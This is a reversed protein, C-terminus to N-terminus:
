GAESKDALRILKNRRKLKKIAQQVIEKPRDNGIGTAIEKDAYELKELITTNFEFQLRNGKFKFDLEKERQLQLVKEKTDRYERDTEQRISSISADLYGKFDVLAAKITDGVQKLSVNPNETSGTAIDNDTM